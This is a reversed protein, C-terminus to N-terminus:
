ADPLLEAAKTVREGLIRELDALAKKVPKTASDYTTLAYLDAWERQQMLAPIRDLDGRVEKRVARQIAERLSTEPTEPTDPPTLPSGDRAKFLVIRSDPNAGAQVRDVRTIRLQRLYGPERSV